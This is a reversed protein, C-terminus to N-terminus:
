AVLRDSWVAAVLVAESWRCDLKKIWERGLWFFSRSYGIQVKGEGVLPESQVM